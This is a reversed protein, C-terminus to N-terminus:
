LWDKELYLDKKDKKWDFWGHWNLDLREKEAKRPTHPIRLGGLAEVMKRFRKVQRETVKLDAYSQPTHECQYGCGINVGCVGLHELSSIDSFSGLGLQFFMSAYDDMGAYQYTVADNGRRDFQFLWNYDRPLDEREVLLATSRGIEEDDTLLVDCVIGLKPLVDLLLWVGLRDDLATSYVRNGHREYHYAGARVSDCHAVGLISGGRDIIRYDGGCLLDKTPQELRYCLPRREPNYPKNKM